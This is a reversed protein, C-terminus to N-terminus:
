NKRPITARGISMGVEVDVMIRRNSWLKLDEDWKIRGSEFVVIISSGGFEFLGVEDGKEVHSGERKFKENIKIKGVDEAGIAVFLVRGFEETTIETCTRDNKALVDLSSGVALPDVGYYDGGLQKFWTVVGSVPSHYRHYDQPSLRFCAIAGNEWIAMKQKDQLLTGISFGHGKIWLRRSTAVSDYVVLRADSCSVAVAPNDRDYIPRSNIAHKRIFFDQFTPYEHIDSPDFDEMNIEFFRIFSAIKNRSHLSEQEKEADIARKHLYARFTKTRDIWETLPNFLILLRLKKLLPQKERGLRGTKRNYTKWGVDRNWLALFLEVVRRLFPVSLL